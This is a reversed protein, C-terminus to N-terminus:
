FLADALMGPNAQNPHYAQAAPKQLLSVHHHRLPSGGTGRLRLSVRLVSLRQKVSHLLTPGELQEAVLKKTKTHSLLKQHSKGLYRMAQGIDRFDDAGAASSAHAYCM